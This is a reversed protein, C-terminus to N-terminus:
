KELCVMRDCFGPFSKSVVDMGVVPRLGVSWLAMAIRHDGHSDFLPSAVAAVKRGDWKLCNTDADLVYGAKALEEILAAIRDSEKVRLHAVGTLRFPVGAVCMAATMAPVLDPTDKMDAEFERGERRCVAIRRFLGCCASDGQLSQGDPLLGMMYFEREPHLLSYAYFYSAASWDAEIEYTDGPKLRRFIGIMRHTMELYPASVTKLGGIDFPTKWLLSAMLLASAFQSSLSSDVTIGVGDLRAGTIRLPAQGYNNLYEIDAGASRLGDVLPALPRRRLDDSCDVVGNFGPTSAAMAVFFRLSTGGSGLNYHGAGRHFDALAAALERTDDCNPMHRFDLHLNLIENLILARAAVSKSGPLVIETM